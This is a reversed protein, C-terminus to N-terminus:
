ETSKVWIWGEKYALEKNDPEIINGILFDHAALICIAADLADANRKLNEVKLPLEVLKGLQEIIQTREKGNEPGKYGTSPIKHAVLTGAPYVEIVAMRTKLNKDWALPIKEGMIKELKAILELAACATRAIRDAGIDLPTKGVKDKVIKDTTRRFLDNPNSNLSQGAQHHVLKDGLANPWGLPADIAILVKDDANIWESLTKEIPKNPGGSDAKLIKVEDGDVIGLAIGTKQPKTACDIGIVKIKM